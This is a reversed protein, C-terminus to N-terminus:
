VKYFVHELASKSAMTINQVMGNVKYTDVGDSLPKRGFNVIVDRQCTGNGNCHFHRAEHKVRRDDFFISEWPDQLARDFLLLGRSKFGDFEDDGYYGSPTQLKWIRSEGGSKVGKRRVM